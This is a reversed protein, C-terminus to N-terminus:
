AITRARSRLESALNRVSVGRSFPHVTCFGAAGAAMVQACNDATIGGIAVVPVQVAECVKALGKLGVIPLGAKTQSPFVSGCGLYDAGEAQAEIAGQVKRVTAGILLSPSLRRADSITLDAQGLHVGDADSAMAAEVSDNIFLLCERDECVRKLKRALDVLERTPMRKLRLQLMRVGGAIADFALKLPDRSACLSDDVIFYLPSFQLVSRIRQQGRSGLVSPMAQEGPEAPWILLASRELDYLEFRVNKYFTAFKPMVFFRFYEELSRAAEECYKFRQQIFESLPEGAPSIRRVRPETASAEAGGPNLLERGFRARLLKEEFGVREHLTSLKALETRAEPNAKFQEVLVHLGERLTRLDKDIISHV